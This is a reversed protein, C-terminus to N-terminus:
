VYGGLVSSCHPYELKPESLFPFPFVPRKQETCVLVSNLVTVILM